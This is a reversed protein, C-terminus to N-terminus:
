LEVTQPLRFTGAYHWRKAHDFLLEPPLLLAISEYGAAVVLEVEIGHVSALIQEARIPLGNVTGTSKSCFVTYVVLGEQLSTRARVALNTSHYVVQCQDLRISVRSARFAEPSLKLVDQKLVEISKGVLTPDKLEAVVVAPSTKQM